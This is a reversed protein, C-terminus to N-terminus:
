DVRIMESLNKQRSSSGDPEEGQAQGAWPRQDREIHCGESGVEMHHRIMKQRNVGPSSSAQKDPSDRVGFATRPLKRDM